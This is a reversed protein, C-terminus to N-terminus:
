RGTETKIPDRDSIRKLLAIDELLPAGHFVPRCYEIVVNVEPALRDICHIIEAMNLVGGQLRSHLDHIGDNNHLHFGGIQGQLDRILKPIDWRNAGAHGVDILVPLERERCLCTFEEQNLVCTDDNVTGTNEVLFRIGSFMERMEELNELSTQIMRERDRGAVPTNNLHYVMERPHLIDAFKKTLRLHYMGEEYAASGKPAAHDVGWVPEHFMLPGEAFLDLNKKLNDEFDPLDFMMLLEFGLSTGFRERYIRATELQSRPLVCTDIYINLHSGKGETRYLCLFGSVRYAGPGPTPM